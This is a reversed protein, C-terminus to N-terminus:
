HSDSGLSKWRDYISWFGASKWCCISRELAGLRTSQLTVTTETEGPHVNWGKYQSPHSYDGKIICKREILEARQLLGLLLANDRQRDALIWPSKRSDVFPWWQIRAQLLIDLRTVIPVEKRGGWSSFPRSKFPDM